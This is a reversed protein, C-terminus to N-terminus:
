KKSEAISAVVRSDKRLQEYFLVNDKNIFLKDTPGHLENSGLKALAFRTENLVEQANNDGTIQLYYVDRLAFEGRMSKMPIGFYVQGNNLFVAYYESAFADSYVLPVSRYVFYYYAGAILGLIILALFFSKIVGRKRPQAPEERPDRPEFHRGQQM